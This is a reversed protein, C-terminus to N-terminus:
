ETKKYSYSDTEGNRAKYFAYLINRGFIRMKPGAQNKEQGLLFRQYKLWITNQNTEKFALLGRQKRFFFEKLM